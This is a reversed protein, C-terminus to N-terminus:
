SIKSGTYQRLLVKCIRLYATVPAGVMIVPLKIMFDTLEASDLVKEVDTKKINGTCYSILNIAHTKSVKKKLTVSFDFEGLSVYKSLLRAGLQSAYSDWQQYDGLVHLADTPTFGIQRIYRKQLLKRLIGEFMLPHKKTKSAIDLVSSHEETIPM